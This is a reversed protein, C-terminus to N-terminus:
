IRVLIRLSTLVVAGYASPAVVDLAMLDIAKLHREISVAVHRADLWGVVRHADNDVCHVTMLVVEAEISDIRAAGHCLEDDLLMYVLIHTLLCHFAYLEDAVLNQEGAVARTVGLEVYIIHVSLQLAGDTVAVVVDSGYIAVVGLSAVYIILSSGKSGCITLDVDCM